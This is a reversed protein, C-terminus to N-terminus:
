GGDEGVVVLGPYRERWREVAAQDKVTIVTRRDLRLTIPPQAPCTAQEQTAVPRAKRKRKEMSRNMSTPTYPNLSTSM